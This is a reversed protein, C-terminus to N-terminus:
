SPRLHPPLNYKAVLAGVGASLVACSASLVWAIDPETAQYVAEVYALPIIADQGGLSLVVAHDDVHKVIWGRDGIGQILADLRLKFGEPIQQIRLMMAREKNQLRAEVEGLTM